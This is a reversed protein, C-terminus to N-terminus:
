LKRVNRVLTLLIFIIWIAFTIIFIPSAVNVISSGIAENTEKMAIGGLWAVLSIVILAGLTSNAKFLIGVM